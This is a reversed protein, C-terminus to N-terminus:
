YMDRCVLIIINPVHSSRGNKKYIPIVKIATWDEPIVSENMSFQFLRHLPKVLYPFVNIVFKPFIEDVGSSCNVNMNNIAHVINRETIVINTLSNEPVYQDYLPLTQDDVISIHPSSINCYLNIKRQM